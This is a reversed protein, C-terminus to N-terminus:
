FIRIFYTKPFTFRGSCRKCTKRICTKDTFVSCVYIYVAPSKGLM